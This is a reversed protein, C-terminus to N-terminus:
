PHEHTAQDDAAQATHKTQGEDRLPALVDQAEDVASEDLQGREDDTETLEDGDDIDITQRM